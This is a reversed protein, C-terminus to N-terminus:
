CHSLPPGCLLARHSTLKHILCAQAFAGMHHCEVPIEGNFIEAFAVHHQGPITGARQSSYGGLWQFITRNQNQAAGYSRAARFTIEVERGILRHVQSVPSAAKDHPGVLAGQGERPQHVVVEDLPGFVRAVKQNVFQFEQGLLHEVGLAELDHTGRRREANEVTDGSTPM